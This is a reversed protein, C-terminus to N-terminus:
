DDGGRSSASRTKTVVTKGNVVRTTITVGSATTTAVPNSVQPGGSTTATSAGGTSTGTAGTGTGTTGTGTGATGTVSTNAAGSGTVPLAQHALAVVAAGTGVILAAATWNSVRRVHRVGDRRLDPDM